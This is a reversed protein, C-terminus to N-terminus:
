TICDEQLHPRKRLRLYGVVLLVVLMSSVVGSALDRIM